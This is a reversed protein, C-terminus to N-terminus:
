SSTERHVLRRLTRSSFHVLVNCHVQYNRWILCSRSRKIPKSAAKKGSRAVQVLPLCFLKTKNARLSLSLSYCIAFPLHFDLHLNLSLSLPSFSCFHLNTQTSFQSIIACCEERAVLKWRWEEEGREGQEEKARTKHCKHGGFKAVYHEKWNSRTAKSGGSLM